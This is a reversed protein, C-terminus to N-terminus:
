EINQVQERLKEIESKLRVVAQTMETDGAKSGITNAERNMEQILFDMKKGIEGDQGDALWARMQTFHSDLRALEEDVACRDALLAVEQALRAPEVPEIPLNALRQQLRERYSEVVLPARALLTQRLEEAAALHIRLDERMRQGESGRMENLRELAGALAAACAEAVAEEDLAAETVQTVGELQMLQAMPLDAAIGTAESLQRAADAYAKALALDCIVQREGLATNVVNLSVEVHGRRVGAAVAGRILGELFGLNRPLRLALDLFRHNVTRLEATVQWGRCEAQGRGCGTMSRM